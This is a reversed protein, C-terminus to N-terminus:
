FTPFPLSPLEAAFQSREKKMCNNKTESLLKLTNGEKCVFFM